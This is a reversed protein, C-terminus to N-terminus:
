MLEFEFHEYSWMIPSLFFIFRLSFELVHSLDFLHVDIHAVILACGLSFLITVFLALFIELLHWAFPVGAFGMM